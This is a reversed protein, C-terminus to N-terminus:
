CNACKLVEQGTRKLALRVKEKMDTNPHYYKEAEIDTLSLTRETRKEKGYTVVLNLIVRAM